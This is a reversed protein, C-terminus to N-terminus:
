NLRISFHRVKESCEIVGSVFALSLVSGDGGLLAGGLRSRGRLLDHFRGLHLITGVLSIAVGFTSASTTGGGTVSFAGEITMGSSATSLFDLLFTSSAVVPAGVLVIGLLSLTGHGLTLLLGLFSLNSNGLFLLLFFSGFRLGLVLSNRVLLVHRGFSSGVRRCECGNSFTGDVILKASLTGEFLLLSVEKDHSTTLLQLLLSLLLILLLRKDKVKLDLTGNATVVSSRTPISTTITTISSTTFSVTSTSSAPVSPAVVSSTVPGTSTTTSASTSPSQVSSIGIGEWRKLSNSFPPKISTM